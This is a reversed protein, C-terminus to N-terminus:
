NAERASPCLTAKWNLKAKRKGSCFVITRQEMVAPAPMVADRQTSGAEAVDPQPMAVGNVPIGLLIKAWVPLNDQNAM